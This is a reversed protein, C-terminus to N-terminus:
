RQKFKKNFEDKNLNKFKFILSKREFYKERERNKRIRSGYDFENGSM